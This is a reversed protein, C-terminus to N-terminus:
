LSFLEKYPKWPTKPLHRLDLNDITHQINSSGILTTLMYPLSRAFQLSLDLDSGSIGLKKSIITNFPRKFLNMRALPSSGIIGIELKRATVVISTIKGDMVQTPTSIALTKGLNYPVQVFGFHHNIGGVERALVELGTLSLAEEHTPKVLFANWSAIGYWSIKGEGVLMEFLEFAARIKKM